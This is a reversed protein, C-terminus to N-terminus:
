AQLEQILKRQNLVEFMMGIILLPGIVPSRILQILIWFAGVYAAAQGVARAGAFTSTIAKDALKKIRKM